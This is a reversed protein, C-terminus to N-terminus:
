SSAPHRPNKDLSASSPISSMVGCKCNVFICSLKCSDLVCYSSVGSLEICTVSWGNKRRSDAHTAIGGCSLQGICPYLEIWRYM